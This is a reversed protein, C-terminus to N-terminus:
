ALVVYSEFLEFMGIALGMSEGEGVFRVVNVKLSALGRVSDDTCEFSSVIGPTSDFARLPPHILQFIRCSHHDSMVGNSHSMRM